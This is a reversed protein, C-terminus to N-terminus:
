ATAIGPHITFVQDLGTVRLIRLTDTPVAALVLDADAALAHQRAALLAAVGIFDCLALGTLDIVLRQGPRLALREVYQCLAAAHVSDLAGAVEVVPGTATNRGTVDLPSM